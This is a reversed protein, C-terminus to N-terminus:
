LCLGCMYFLILYYVGRSQKKKEHWASKTNIVKPRELAVNINSLYKRRVTEYFGSKELVKHVKENVGLSVITIKEKQSM